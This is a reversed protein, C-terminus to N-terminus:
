KFLVAPTAFSKGARGSIQKQISRTIFPMKRQPVKPVTPIPNPAAPYERAWQYTMKCVRGTQFLFRPLPVMVGAPSKPNLYQPCCTHPISSTVLHLSVLTDCQGSLSQSETDTMHDNDNIMFILDDRSSCSASQM